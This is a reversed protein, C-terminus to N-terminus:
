FVLRRDSLIEHKLFWIRQKSSFEIVTIRYDNSIQRYGVFKIDKCLENTINIKINNPIFKISKLNPIM